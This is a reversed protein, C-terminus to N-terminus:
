IAMSLARNVAEPEKEIVKLLVRAPGQPLRHGQEWNKVSSATFGFRMAFESQSLNLRKRIARVDVEDPVRVQSVRVEVAEGNAYAAAERMGRLIKSTM